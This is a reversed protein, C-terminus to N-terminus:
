ARALRIAVFRDQGDRQVLLLIAEDGRKAAERVADAVMKPDNVQKRNAEVIVDGPQLGKEAAPSGPQVDTVVVGKADEPLNLSSRTEPTLKALMVGLKPTDAQEGSQEATAVVQDESPMQGIKVEVTSEKGDRWLVVNADNGPKVDAVMRTLDTLREVSKGDFKLIVDGQKFGAKAAPSDETVEAVLAGKDTPLGLGSALDQDIGQIHVGLWGREVTGSTELEAVVEKVLNAPIAFGIGVNGGSPSQILTNVGIVEGKLDFTPGGSNGRNIPADIQLFDDYRGAGIERHEASVIGATVTGGLGFPSGIAIVPDGVRVRDSDAFTVPHLEAADADVKVLALDTAEDKGIVKGTLEKGDHLTVTVEEAGDVVHYNTVIRGEKDIVFGSGMAVPAEMNPGGPPMPQAFHPMQEGFQQGFFREMFRKMMESDPGGEGQWGFEQWGPGQRHFERGGPQDGVLHNSASRTATIAVVSPMVQEILDAYGTWPTGYVPTAPAAQSPQSSNMGALLAIAAVSSLAIATLRLPRRVRRATENPFARLGM